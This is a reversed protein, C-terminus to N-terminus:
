EDNDGKKTQELVTTGSLVKLTNEDPISYDKTVDKKYFKIFESDSQAVKVKIKNIYEYSPRSGIQMTEVETFNNATNDLVIVNPDFQIELEAEAKDSDNTLIVNLYPSNATDEVQYTIGDKGAYIYLNGYLTETYPSIADARTKIHVYEGEKFDSNKPTINMTFEDVNDNSILRSTKGNLIPDIQLDIYASGLSFTNLQEENMENPSKEVCSLTTDTINKYKFVEVDFKLQYEIDVKSKKLTNKRSYMEITAINTKTGRSGSWNKIEFRTNESKALINSTFYFEKSNLYATRVASYVFKSLSVTAPFIVKVIMLIIIITIIFLMILKKYGSNKRRANGRGKKL